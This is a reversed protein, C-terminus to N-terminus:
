PRKATEVRALTDQHFFKKLEEYLEPDHGGRSPRAAALRRPRSQCRGAHLCSIPMAVFDLDLAVPAFFDAAFRL